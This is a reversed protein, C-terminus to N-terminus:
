GDNVHSQSRVLLLPCNGEYLVKEAVSGFVWRSLGSRGHTSIAVLDVQREDAFKIIEEAAHGLRIESEVTVGSQELGAGVKVLYERASAKEEEMQQDPYDIREFGSASASSYAPSLAQFLIIDSKLKVALEQIYPIASEGEKSGDLPVLAKLLIGKERLDPQAGKARILEVPRSTARIVKDAVSGLTWRSLGSRGHTSMVILGADMKEAYDVITEAPYGFLIESKVQIEQKGPEELFREVGRQTAALMKDMYSERINQNSDRPSEGVYVLTVDSALRGALETAYPLAVEALESGDLPVLIREFM